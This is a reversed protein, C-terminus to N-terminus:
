RQVEFSALIQSFLKEFKSFNKSYFVISYYGKEPYFYYISNEGSFLFTKYRATIKAKGITREGIYSIQQVRQEALLTTIWEELGKATPDNVPHFYVKAGNVPEFSSSTHWSVADECGACRGANNSNDVWYLPYSIQCNCESIHFTRWKDAGYVRLAARFVIWLLLVVIFFGLPKASKDYTRSNNSIM